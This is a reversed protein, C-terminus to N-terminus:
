RLRLLPDRGALGDVRRARRALEAEGLLREREILAADDDLEGQACLPVRGLAPVREARLELHLGAVVLRAEGRAVYVRGDGHGDVSPRLRFSSPHLIFSVPESM